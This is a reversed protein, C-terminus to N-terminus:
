SSSLPLSSTSRVTSSTDPDSGGLKSLVECIDHKLPLEEFDATYLAQLLTVHAEKEILLRRCMCAGYAAAAQTKHVRELSYQAAWLIRTPFGPNSQFASLLLLPQTVLGAYTSLFFPDGAWLLLKCWRTNAWADHLEASLSHPLM